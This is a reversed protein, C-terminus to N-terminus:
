LLVKEIALVLTDKVDIIIGETKRDIYRLAEICADLLNPAAAILKANAEGEETIPMQFQCISTGYSHIHCDNPANLHFVLNWEGQTGKFQKTTM